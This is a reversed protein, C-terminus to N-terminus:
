PAGHEVRKKEDVWVWGFAWRMMLRHWWVPRRALTFAVGSGVGGIWYAGARVPPKEMRFQDPM